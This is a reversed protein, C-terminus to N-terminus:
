NKKRGFFRERVSLKRSQEAELEAKTEALEKRLREAEENQAAASEEAAAARSEALAIKNDAELRFKDYERLEESQTAIKDAQVAVKELLVENKKELEAIRDDKDTQVIVSPTQSSGHDLIDVAFEDLFKTNKNMYVKTIIHGKLMAVNTKRNIQQYVAQVSKGRREAYEKISILDPM